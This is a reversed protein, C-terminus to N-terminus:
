LWTKKLNNFKEEILKFNNLEAEVKREEAMLDPLVMGDIIMLEASRAYVSTSEYVPFPVVSIEFLTADRVNRVYKGEEKTWLPEANDTFGFSMNFIDKRKIQKVLDQAWGVDPPINEFQVGDQDETLKLMGNSTRGLINELKHNWLIFIDSGSEVSHKFAGPLIREKIDPFDKIPNISLKNYPIATGLITAIKNDISIRLNGDFSRKEVGSRKKHAEVWAQAEALTFKKVDFLYKQIHTSGTPDSTLKGIVAKVGDTIDITRFSDQVFANKSKVPIHHYDETTEVRLMWEDSAVRKSPTEKDFEKYHSELHSIVGPKDSAPIDVGGRAGMIAGMAAAVGSWVAMHAGSSKHHPLKYSTKIDPNASDFWACMLKLDEVSAAKVEAGADWAESEPAKGLDKYAIVGM